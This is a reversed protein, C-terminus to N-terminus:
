KLHFHETTLCSRDKAFSVTFSATVHSEVCRLMEVEIHPILYSLYNNSNSDPLVFFSYTCLSRRIIIVAVLRFTEALM